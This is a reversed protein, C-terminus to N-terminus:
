SVLHIQSLNPFIRKLLPLQEDYIFTPGRISDISSLHKISLVQQCNQDILAIIERMDTHDFNNWILFILFYNSDWKM